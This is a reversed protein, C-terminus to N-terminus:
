QGYRVSVTKKKAFPLIKKKITDFNELYSKPIDKHLNSLLFQIFKDQTNVKLLLNKLEIRKKDKSLDNEKIDFDFFNSYRSPILKCRLCIKLFEKKPFYFSEFIIKNFKFAIKSILNDILKIIRIKLPFNKTFLNVRVPELSMERRLKEYKKKFNNRTIKKEILSLNQINLFYILRLFILHNWEDEQTNNTFDSHNKPLFDLDNLSLFYSSFKKANNKKFFIRITEWRDFITVIYQNLWPFIVIRWYEKNKDINHITSLKDSIIELLRELIQKLYKYDKNKKEYDKWHYPNKIINIKKPIKKKSKEEDLINSEYFKCWDGLLFNNENFKWTDALGTTVLINKKM